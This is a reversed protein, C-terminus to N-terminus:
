FRPPLSIGRCDISIVISLGLSYRDQDRNTEVTWVEMGLNFSLLFQLFADLTNIM